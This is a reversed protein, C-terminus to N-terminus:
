LPGNQKLYERLAEMEAFSLAETYTNDSLLILVPQVVTVRITDRAINGWKDTATLIYEYFQWTMRKIWPNLENLTGSAPGNALRWSYSVGDGSVSAKLQISDTPWKVLTDTFTAKVLLPHTVEFVPTIMYSVKDYVTRPFTGEFDTHTGRIGTLNGKVLENALGQSKSDYNKPPTISATYENGPQVPVPILAVRQWGRGNSVFTNTSLVQGSANWVRAVYTGSASTYYRIATVMGSVAVKFVTGIEVPGDSAFTTPTPPLDSATYLSDQSHAFLTTFILIFLFLHKMATNHQHHFSLKLLPSPIV